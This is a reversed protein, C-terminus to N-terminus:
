PQGVAPRARTRSPRRARPVFSGHTLFNMTLTTAYTTLEVLTAAETGAPVLGDVGVADPAARGARGPDVRHDGAHAHEAAVLGDVREGHRGGARRPSGSPQACRM